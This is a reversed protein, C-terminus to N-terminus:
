AIQRDIDIIPRTWNLNGLGVLARSNEVPVSIFLNGAPIIMGETTQTAVIIVRFVGDNSVAKRPLKLTMIRVARRRAFNV